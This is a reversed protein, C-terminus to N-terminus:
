RLALVMTQHPLGAEEFPAGEAVFGRRTYFGVASVQAHLVARAHGRDRAAALLAQLLRAGVGAGRVDRHVALRGIRASGDPQAVLRGTGVAMGMRNVALVHLASADAGDSEITAPVGQEDVFVAQRLAAAPKGLDAWTGSRVSLMPEGAEFATFLERLAAPAPRSTQTAPDAFVYLLEGTVLLKDGRFVAAGLAISSNGLRHLRIGVDIPDDYRASALYEVTAKRVYLDGQLAHMTDHYPLAMARWYGAVATDFYMLYHGNFVIKQMDVEAWRVRLRELFRFADRTVTM